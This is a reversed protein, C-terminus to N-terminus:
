PRTGVPEGAQLKALCTPCISHSFDTGTEQHIYADISHWYDQDDRVSKCYMCIPLLSKLKRVDALAAELDGVKRALARELVVVRQGVTLRARLEDPDFPKIVYDDAGAQLGAAIEEKQSKATLLVLYVYPRNAHERVRACVELGDMKPMMWDLIALPPADASELISLAEEGDEATVVTFGWNMLNRELLHRSVYHDEAVLVRNAESVM